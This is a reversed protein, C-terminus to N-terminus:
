KAWITFPFTYFIDNRRLNNKGSNALPVSMLGGGGGGGGVYAGRKTPGFGGRETKLYSPWGGKTKSLYSM